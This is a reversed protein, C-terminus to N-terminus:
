NQQDCSAEKMAGDLADRFSDGIAYGSGSSVGYKGEYPHDQFIAFYIGDFDQRSIWDIRASDKRCEALEATLREIVLNPTCTHIGETIKGCRECCNVIYKRGNTDTQVYQTM